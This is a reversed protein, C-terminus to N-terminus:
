PIGPQSTAPSHWSGNESYESGTTSLDMVELAFDEGPEGSGEFRDEGQFEQSHEDEAPLEELVPMEGGGKLKDMMDEGSIEVSDGYMQCKEAFAEYEEKFQVMPMPLADGHVALMKLHRGLAASNAIVHMARGLPIVRLVARDIKDTSQIQRPGKRARSLNALANAFGIVLRTCFYHFNYITRKCYVGQGSKAVKQLRELNPMPIASSSSSAMLTQLGFSSLANIYKALSKDGIVNQRLGSGGIAQLMPEEGVKALNMILGLALWDTIRRLM